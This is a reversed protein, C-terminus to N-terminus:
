HAALPSTCLSRNSSYKEADLSFQQVSVRAGRPYASDDLQPHVLSTVGVIQFYDLSLDARFRTGSNLPGDWDKLLVYSIRIPRGPPFRLEKETLVRTDALTTDASLAKLQTISKEIHQQCAWESPLELKLKGAPGGNFELTVRLTMTKGAVVPELSYNLVSASTSPPFNCQGFSALSALAVLLLMLGRTGRRKRDLRRHM